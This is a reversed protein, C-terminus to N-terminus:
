EDDEDDDFPPAYEDEHGAYCEAHCELDCDCEGTESFKCGKAHLWFRDDLDDGEIPKNCICCIIPNHPMAVCIGCTCETDHALYVLKRLRKAEAGLEAIRKEQLGQSELLAAVMQKMDNQLAGITENRAALANEYEDRMEMVSSEPMFRRPGDYGDATIFMLDLEEKDFM